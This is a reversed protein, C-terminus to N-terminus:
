AAAVAPPPPPPASAARATSLAGLTRRIEPMAYTEIRQYVSREVGCITQLDSLYTSEDEIASTLVDLSRQTTLYQHQVQGMNDTKSRYEKELRSLERDALSGGKAVQLLELNHHSKKVAAEAEAALGELVQVGGLKKSSKLLQIKPRWARALLVSSSFAALRRYRWANSPSLM